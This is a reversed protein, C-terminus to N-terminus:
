ARKSSGSRSWGSTFRWSSNAGTLGRRRRANSGRRGPDPRNKEFFSVRPSTAPAQPRLPIATASPASATETPAGPTHAPAAGAEDEADFTALVAGTDVEDGARVSFTRVTGTVTSELQVVAKDTMIELLPQGRRVPEGVDVLWRVVTVASGTTAVDPLRMVVDMM